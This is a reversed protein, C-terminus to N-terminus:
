RCATKAAVRGLVVCDQLLDGHGGGVVEGAAYLGAIAKSSPSFVASDYDIGLGGMRYYTVPTINIVHFPEAKM